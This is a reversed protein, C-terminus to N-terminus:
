RTAQVDIFGSASLTALTWCLYGPGNLLFYDTGTLSLNTGDRQITVYSNPNEPDTTFKPVLTGTVGTGYVIAVRYVGSDIKLFVNPSASDAEIRHQAIELIM